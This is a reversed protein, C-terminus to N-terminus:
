KLSISKQKKGGFNITYKESSVLGSDLVSNYEANALIWARYTKALKEAAKKLKPKM